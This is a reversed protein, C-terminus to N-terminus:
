SVPTPGTFVTVFKSGPHLRVTKDPDEYEKRERQGRVEVLYHTAPDKGTLRLISGATLEREDSTYTEGDVTFEITPRGKKATEAQKEM